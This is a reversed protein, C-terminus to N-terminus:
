TCIAIYIYIYTIILYIILLHTISTDISAVRGKFIVAKFTYILWWLVTFFPLELGKQIPMVSQVFLSSPNNLRDAVKQLLPATPSPM